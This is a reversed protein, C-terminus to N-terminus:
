KQLIQNLSRAIQKNLYMCLPTVPKIACVVTNGQYDHTFAIKALWQNFNPKRAIAASKIAHIINKSSIFECNATPLNVSFKINKHV